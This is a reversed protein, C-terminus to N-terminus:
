FVYQLLTKLHKLYKSGLLKENEVCTDYLQATNCETIYVCVCWLWKGGCVYVMWLCECLCADVCMIHSFVVLIKYVKKRKRGKIKIVLGVQRAGCDRRSPRLLLEVDDTM